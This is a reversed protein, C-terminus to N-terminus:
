VERLGLEFWVRKGGPTPEAGWRSSLREVLLLGRGGPASASPYQVEPLQPSADEVAVVLADPSLEASITFPSRAHAVANSALESVLLVAVEAVEEPVDGDILAGVERRARSVSGPGNGFTAVMRRGPGQDQEVLRTYRM